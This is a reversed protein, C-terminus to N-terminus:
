SLKIKHFSTILAHGVGYVQLMILKIEVFDIHYM